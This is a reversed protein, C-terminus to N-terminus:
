TIKGHKVLDAIHAKTIEVNHMLANLIAKEVLYKGDYIWNLSIYGLVTDAPSKSKSIEIMKDFADYNYRDQGLDIDSHKKFFEILGDVTIHLITPIDDFPTIDFGISTVTTNQRLWRLKAIYDMAFIEEEPTVKDEYM